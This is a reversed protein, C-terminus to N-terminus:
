RASRENSVVLFSSVGSGRMAIQRLPLTSQTDSFKAGEACPSHTNGNARKLHRNTETWGGPPTNPILPRRYVHIIWPAFLSARAVLLDGVGTGEIATASSTMARVPLLAAPERLANQRQSLESLAFFSAGLLVRLDTSLM